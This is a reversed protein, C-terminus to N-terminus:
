DNESESRKRKIQIPGLYTFLIDSVQYDKLFIRVLNGCFSEMEDLNLKSVQLLQYLIM